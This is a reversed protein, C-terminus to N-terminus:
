IWNVFDLSRLSCLESINGVWLFGFVTM